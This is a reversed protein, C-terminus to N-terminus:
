RRSEQLKVELAPAGVLEFTASALKVRGSEEVAALIRTFLADKTTRRLRYDVIYRLTLEVWNDNAVMTVMPVVRADEIRYTRVMHKWTEEASRAFEGVVEDAVAALIRRAEAYDSGYKVPLTLEDWLFGFDASYNFVPERFVHVNALRVIRGNYLDGKVWGGCEMLTTRLVGIDIVDGCIGGLMVRDGVKYFHGIALVLWGAISAIVEQLAFAIGASAAALVVTLGSLRGGIEAILYIVAILYGFFLLAKQTRYRVDVDNIARRAAARLLAVIVWVLVLVLTVGFVQRVLPSGWFVGLLDSTPELVEPPEHRIFTIVFM